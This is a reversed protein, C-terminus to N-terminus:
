KPAPMLRRKAFYVMGLMAASIGAWTSPEPVPSMEQQLTFVGSENPNGGNFAANGDSAVFSDSQHGISYEDGNAGDLALIGFITTSGLLGDGGNITTGAFTGTANLVNYHGVGNITSTILTGSGTDPTAGNIPYEGAVQTWTWDWTITDAQASIFFISLLSLFILKKMDYIGRGHRKTLEQNFVVGLFIRHFRALAVFYLPYYLGNVSL